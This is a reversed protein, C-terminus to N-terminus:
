ISEPDNMSSFDFYPRPGELGWYPPPDIYYRSAAEDQAEVIEDDTLGGLAVRILAGPRPGTGFRWPEPRNLGYAPFTDRIAEPYDVPSEAVEFEVAVPAAPIGDPYQSRGSQLGLYSVLVLAAAMAAWNATKRFLYLTAFSRSTNTHAPARGSFAVVNVGSDRILEARRAPSLRFSTQSAADLGDALTTFVPRLEEIEASFEPHANAFDEFERTQLGSMEGSLYLAIQTQYKEYQKNM